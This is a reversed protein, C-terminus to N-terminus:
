DSRAAAGLSLHIQDTEVITRYNPDFIIGNGSGEAGICLWHPVLTGFQRELEIAELGRSNEKGAAQRLLVARAFREPDCMDIGLGPTKVQRTVPAVLAAFVNGGGFDEGVGHGMLAGSQDEGM